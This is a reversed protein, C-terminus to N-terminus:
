WYVFDITLSIGTTNLRRKLETLHVLFNISFVDEWKEVMRVRGEFIFVMRFETPSVILGGPLTLLGMSAEYKELTLMAQDIAYAFDSTKGIKVFYLTQDKFFDCVEYKYRGNGETDVPVTHPHLCIAGLLQSANQNYFTEYPQKHCTESYLGNEKAFQVVEDKSLALADATHNKFAIKEAEQFIRNLYANNFSCWKGNRLCFNDVTIFELYETIPKRNTWADSAYEISINIKRIVEQLSFGKQEVFSNIANISLEGNFELVKYNCSLKFRVSDNQILRTGMMYFSPVNILNGNNGNEDYQEIAVVLQHYLDEIKDSDEEADLFSLKPLSIQSDEKLVENLLNLKRGIETPKEEWKFQASTGCNIITGWMETDLSTGRIYTPIEGSRYSLVTGALYDMHMKSLKSGHSINQQARVQDLDILREAVAVGFNFDCYGSVYFHANGYSVVFYSDERHCILAAGYIKIEQTLDWESCASLLNVWPSGKSNTKECFMLTFTYGSSNQICDPKLPIEEFNRNELFTKFADVKDPLIRYINYDYRPKNNRKQPM